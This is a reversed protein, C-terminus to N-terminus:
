DCIADLRWVLDVLDILGVSFAGEVLFDKVLGDGERAAAHVVCGFEAAGEEVGVAGELGWVGAQGFGADGPSVADM